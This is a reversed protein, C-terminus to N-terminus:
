HMLEPSLNIRESRCSCTIKGEGLLCVDSISLHCANEWPTGMKLVDGSFQMINVGVSMVKIRELDLIKCVSM